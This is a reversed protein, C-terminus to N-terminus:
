GFKNSIVNQVRTIQPIRFRHAACGAGECVCLRLAWTNDWIQQALESQISSYTTQKSRVGMGEISGKKQVGDRRRWHLSM